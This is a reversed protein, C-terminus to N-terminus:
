IWWALVMRRIPISRSAWRARGTAAIGWQKGDEIGVSRNGNFIGEVSVTPYWFRYAVVARQLAADDRARQSAKETPFGKNFPYTPPAAAPDAAYVPLGAAFSLGLAALFTRKM